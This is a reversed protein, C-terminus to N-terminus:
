DLFTKIQTHGSTNEPVERLITDIYLSLISSALTRIKQIEKSNGKRLLVNLEPSVIRPCSWDGNLATAYFDHKEGDEHQMQVCIHSSIRMASVKYQLTRIKM